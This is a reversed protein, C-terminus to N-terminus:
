EGPYPTLPACRERGPGCYSRLAAERVTGQQDLVVELYSLYRRIHRQLQNNKMDDVFAVLPEYDAAFDGSLKPVRIVDAWTGSNLYTFGDVPTCKPLHTHGFAVVQFRGHRAIARAADLYAREEHEVQFATNKRGLSWLALHLKHLREEDLSLWIGGLQALSHARATLSAATTKLWRGTRYLLGEELNDALDGRSSRLPQDYCFLSAEAGLADRLAGHLGEDNCDPVDALDGPRRPMAQEALGHSLYSGVLPVARIIRDLDPFYDPELALLLPLVADDEPKLLDVFRYRAKIRNMMHIVLHSGAPPLFFFRSRLQEDVPLSRSLTSREQRLASHDIQNWRDYRNGHEVLLEGRTYAEGDYILRLNAAPGGLQDILWDRIRPLALEVDHNGLLLTLHTGAACLARLADLVGRPQGAADRAVRTRDFIQRLKTLVQEQDPTFVQAGLGGPYDDEALFDVIDGNIVLEVTGEFRSQGAVWDIFQCLAAYARCLQTGLPAGPTDPDPRGGLHLDSIIFIRRM